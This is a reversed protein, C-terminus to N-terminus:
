YDEWNVKLTNEKDKHLNKNSQIQNKDQIEIQLYEPSPNILEKHHHFITIIHVKYMNIMHLKRIFKREIKLITPYQKSKKLM